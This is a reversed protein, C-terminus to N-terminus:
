KFYEPWFSLVPINYNENLHRVDEKFIQILQSRTEPPMIKKDSKTSNKSKLFQKLKVRYKLPLIGKFFKMQGPALTKALMENKINGAENYTKTTDFAYKKIGLSVAMKNLFVSYDKIMEEFLFVSVNKEPFISYINGLSEVYKSRGIYDCARQLYINGNFRDFGSENQKIAELFNELPERGTKRSYGFASFARDIPNRLVVIIKVDPNHEKLQNLMKIDHMIGVRKAVFKIKDPDSQIKKEVTNDMYYQFGKKFDEPSRFMNFELTFHTFINPHQALYNNLSTTGAKQAGVIMLDIQNAM